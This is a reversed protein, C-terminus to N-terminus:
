GPGGLWSSDDSKDAGIAEGSQPGISCAIATLGSSRLGQNLAMAFRM